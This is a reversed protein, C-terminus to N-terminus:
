LNNMSGEKSKVIGDKTFYQGFTDKASNDNYISLMEASSWGFFDQIVDSPINNRFLMSCTFHRLCHYYFDEGIIETFEQTWYSLDSRQKWIIDGNKNTTKSVFLWESDINLEKRQKIWLDIYPKAGVLIYKNLRKGIKGRGKTRIEDTEWMAGDFILHTDSFFDAKMQLLESKRMGSYAAIAISCAKEYEKRKVLEDMLMQVQEDSFVTKKRVAEDAPNEIRRIIPTFNEFEEEEDLIDQIYNSMSSLCAKVRRTRKPSWGWTNIAYNQFRSIERKTLKAFDKNRNFELNWCWFINLDNKYGRITGESRDISLLYTLFDEALELNNLNVKSLKEPTTIKNYVTTRAM